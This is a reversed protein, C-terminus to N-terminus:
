KSGTLEPLIVQHLAFSSIQHNPATEDIVLYYQNENGLKILQNKVSLEYTRLDNDYDRDPDHQKQGFCCNDLRNLIQVQKRGKGSAGLVYLDPYGAIERYMQPLFQEIDGFSDGYRYYLPMSGAISFSYKIREDIAALLNTTWGGGSLGIINVDKYSSYQLLYNLSVIAPELFLRLGFTPLPDQYGLDTNILKCHDLDCNSETVNPMFVALIDFGAKMLGIITNEMGANENGLEADKFTCGHGHHVIVLRNNRQVPVFLYALNLVPQNGDESLCQSPIEIKDVRAVVPNPHLPSIIDSTVIVDTRNPLQDTNWIAMIIEIRKHHIDDPTQIRFERDDTHQVTCDIRQARMGSSNLGAIFVILLIGKSCIASSFISTTM